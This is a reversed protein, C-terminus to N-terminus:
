KDVLEYRGDTRRAAVKCVTGVILRRAGAQVPDIRPRYPATSATRGMSRARRARSAFASSQATRYARGPHVGPAVAVVIEDLTRPGSQLCSRIEATMAPGAM